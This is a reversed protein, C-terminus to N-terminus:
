RAENELNTISADKTSRTRHQTRVHM